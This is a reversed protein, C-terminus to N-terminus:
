SEHHQMPRPQLWGSPSPLGIRFFCPTIPILSPCCSLEVASEDFTNKNHAPTARQHRLRTGPTHGHAGHCTLWGGASCAGGALQQQQAPSVRQQQRGGKRRCSGALALGQYRHRVLAVQLRQGLHPPSPRHPTCPWARRRSRCVCVSRTTAESPCHRLAGSQSAAGAYRHLPQHAKPKLNHRRPAARGRDLLHADRHLAHLLQSAERLHQVTRSPDATNFSSLPRLLPTAPTSDSAWSLYRGEWVSAPRTFVSWGPTCPPMRARRLRASWMAAMSWCM